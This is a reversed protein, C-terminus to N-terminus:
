KPTGVELYSRGVSFSIDVSNVELSLHVDKIDVEGCWGGDEGGM